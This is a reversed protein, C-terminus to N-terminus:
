EAKKYRVKTTLGQVGLELRIHVYLTEYSEQYGWPRIMVDESLSFSDTEGAKLLGVAHVPREGNEM